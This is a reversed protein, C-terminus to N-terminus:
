RSCSTGTMRSRHQLLIPINDPPDSCTGSDRGLAHDTRNSRRPGIDISFTRIAVRDHAPATNHVM